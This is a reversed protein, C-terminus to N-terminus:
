RWAYGPPPRRRRDRTDAPLRASESVVAHAPRKVQIRRARGGKGVVEVCKRDAFIKDARLHPTEDIRAGSSLIFRLAQGYEAYRAEVWQQIVRVEDPAYPGRPPNRGIVQREMPVIDEHIWNLAYLGEQLKWLTADLTDGHPCGAVQLLAEFKSASPANGRFM